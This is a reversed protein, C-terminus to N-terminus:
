VGLIFLGSKKALHVTKERELLFVRKSELVVGLAKIRVLNEITKPGVTPIDFRFDQQPSAAKFLIVGPGAWKGARRIAEDTGEMAEVAVVAKKKMLLSQGIGMRALSRVKELFGSYSPITRPDVKGVMIGKEALLDELLFRGDALRTGHRALEEAVTRLITEGSRDKMKALLVLARLDFRPHKFLDSHQVKGHMVARHVKNKKFFSTLSGIQGLTIWQFEHSLKELAPSASGRIAATYLLLGKEKARKAMLLPLQGSGAILGLTQTM